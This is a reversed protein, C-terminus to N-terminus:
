RGVGPSWGRVREGKMEDLQASLYLPGLLALVALDIASLRGAPVARRGMFKLFPM